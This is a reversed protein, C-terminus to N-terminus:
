KKYCEKHKQINLALDTKYVSKWNNEELGCVARVCDITEPITISEMHVNISAYVTKDKVVVSEKWLFIEPRDRRPRGMDMYYEMLEATSHMGEGVIVRPMNEFVEIVEQATVPKKLDAQINLVHSFTTPAQVAMSFLNLDPLVTNVDIAHHSQGLVPKLCNFLGSGSKILDSGRRVLSIFAHDLGFYKDLTYVFRTSGTSSCSIVRIKKKGFSDNYNAFSNFSTGGFNHKEGGQVITILDKQSNYLDLYQNPIGKPTCDLLVDCNILLDEFTGDITCLRQSADEPKPQDTIFVKYGKLNADRLSFSASRGAVGVLEMDDQLIVADALRKGIVGYGLIGIKPKM